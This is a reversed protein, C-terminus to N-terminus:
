PSINILLVVILDFWIIDFLFFFSSNFFWSPLPYHEQFSIYGWCIWLCILCVNIMSFSNFFLRYNIFFYIDFPYFIRFNFNPFPFQNCWPPRYDQLIFTIHNIEFFSFLLPLFFHFNSCWFLYFWHYFGLIAFVWFLLMLLIPLSFLSNCPFVCVVILIISFFLQECPFLFFHDLSCLVLL